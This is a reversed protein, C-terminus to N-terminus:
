SAKPERPQRPVSMTVSTGEGPRSDLVFKGGLMATRERMGILGFTRTDSHRSVDIGAGDDKVRLTIKADSESLSVNVQSAKAHRAVNTLSEQLVRFIATAIQPELDLDSTPIDVVIAIGTRQRFDNTLWEITPVLGLDDLMLPRLETAIRRVAAVTSDLLSKMAQARNVAETQTPELQTVLEALDM